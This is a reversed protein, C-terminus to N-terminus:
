KLDSEFLKFLERSLEICDDEEPTWMMSKRVCNCCIDEDDSNACNDCYINGFHVMIKEAATKILYESM